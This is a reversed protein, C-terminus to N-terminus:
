FFKTIGMIVTDVPTWFFFYSLALLVIPGKLQKPRTYGDLFRLQKCRSYVSDQVTLNKFFLSHKRYLLFNPICCEAM